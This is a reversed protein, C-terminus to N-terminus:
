QVKYVFTGLTLKVGSDRSTPTVSAHLSRGLEGAAAAPFGNFM